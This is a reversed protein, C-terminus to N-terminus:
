EAFCIHVAITIHWQFSRPKTIATMKLTEAASHKDTHEASLSNGAAKVSHTQPNYTGCDQEITNKSLQPQWKTEATRCTKHDLWQEVSKCCRGEKLKDVKGNKLHL